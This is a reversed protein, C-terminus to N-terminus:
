GPSLKQADRGLFFPQRTPTDVIPLPIKGATHRFLPDFVIMGRGLPLICAGEKVHIAHFHHLSMLLVAADSSFLGESVGCVSVAHCTFM